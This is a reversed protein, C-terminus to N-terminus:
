YLRVTGKVCKKETKTKNETCPVLVAVLFLLPSESPCHTSFSLTGGDSQLLVCFLAISLPLTYVDCSEWSCVFELLPSRAFFFFVKCLLQAKKTCFTAQISM